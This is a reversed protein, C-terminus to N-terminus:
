FPPVYDFQALEFCVTIQDLSNIDEARLSLTDGTELRMYLSRSGLGAVYGADSNYFTEHVSEEIKQGNLYLFVFNNDGSNQNSGTGYNVEWIGSFGQGVTFVGTKIDLGGSINYNSGCMSDFTLREYTIISSDLDWFSQWGCQFAFPPNRVQRTLTRMDEQLRSVQSNRTILAAELVGIRSDRGDLENKMTTMIEDKVLRKLM